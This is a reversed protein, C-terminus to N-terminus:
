LGEIRVTAVARLPLRTCRSETRHGQDTVYNEKRTVPFPSLDGTRMDVNKTSARHYGQNRSQQIETAILFYRSYLM